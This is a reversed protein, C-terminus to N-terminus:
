NPRENLYQSLIIMASREDILGKNSKIDAREGRLQNEAEQSTYSEDVLEVPLNITEKLRQAWELANKQSATIDGSRVRPVGVVIGEVKEAEIIEQIKELAQRKDEADIFGRGFPILSGIAVGIRKEGIDLALYNKIHSGYEQM